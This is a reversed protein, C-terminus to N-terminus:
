RISSTESHGQNLGMALGEFGLFYLVNKIFKKKLITKSKCFFQASLLTEMYGM